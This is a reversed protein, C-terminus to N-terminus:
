MVHHHHKRHHNYVRWRTGMLKWHLSIKDRAIAWVKAPLLLLVLIPIVVVLPDISGMM